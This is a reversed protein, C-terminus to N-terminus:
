KIRRKKSYFSLTLIAGGSVFLLAFWFCLMSNDGTQPSDPFEPSLTYDYENVFEAVVETVIEGNNTIKAVLNNEDDLSITISIKYEATSYQVNAKGTNVEFLKYNYKKGIDNENFTLNFEADGDEDTKVNLPSASSDALNELIFEFNEPGISEGGKNVVTKHVKVDVAIDSPKPTYINDFVVADVISSSSANVIVPNSAVLKGNEDDKIDVTVYYVSDDFTIRESDITADERIVFYYTNAESFTLADFTFSGDPKNLAILPEAQESVIFESNAPYLLFKFEGDALDRGTLVKKGDLSVTADAAHYSNFFTIKQVEKSNEGDKKLITTKSIELKGKGNDIVKVTIHYQSTDYTVGGIPAQSNEKIIFRYTGASTFEIDEFKFKGDKNNKVSQIAAGDISFDEKAKYLDFTFDNANIKRNGELMKTGEFGKKTKAAEYKNTFNLANLAPYGDGVTAIVKIGGAGDDDVKVTINYKQSSYTIGDITKGANKEKIVYYFTKGVDEAKYSLNFKYEGTATNVNATDIAKSLMEFHEDSEYLEFSFVDDAVLKRGDIKKTGSLTVSGSGTVKYENIFQINEQPIGADDYIHVTSHLQGKLDDAVEVYIRYTTNDYTVGEITQGGNKESVIYYKDDAATIDIASFKISGNSENEVTELLDEKIWNENSAYLEFEYEGGALTNNVKGTLKKDGMFQVSTKEPVYNNAFNLANAPTGNLLTYTESVVQLKGKGTDKVVITVYYSTTDYTIGYAKGGQPVQESVQYVYSGEKSYSIKPFKFSGDAYNKATWNAPSTIPQGNYSVEALTFTFEDNLLNRGTLTKNGAIEHEVPETSYSNQFVIEDDKNNILVYNAALVGDQDTVTVTMRYSTKDITIGDKDIGTEVINYFYSGVANFKLPSNFSVKSKSGSTDNTGKLVTNGDLDRVEFTFEDAVMERGTIQKSVFDINLEADAPDYTNEFTATTVNGADSPRDSGTYIIASLTGDGNDSVVATVPLADTSYTWGTPVPNPAIEKLTYNYTGVKDYSLILRAFGHETTLASTCILNNQADYLGFKFGALSQKAGGINNITKNLDIAVTASGSTSYTNTFGTFVHWGDANEKVETNEPRSARVDVIELEGDMDEDGVDVVFSHVTKDYTIGGLPTQPELEIVRYYYSGAAAYRENAFAEEFTFDSQGYVAEVTDGLQQWTGNPLLKQLQFKFSDGNQWGRGSLTKSGSVAINVPYVEAPAYDNVVVVSVTSDRAISVIGDGQEGNDWYQATFGSGPAQEVVTAVTESPLGYIKLQEDNKLTVSFQGNADTTISTMDSNTQEADFTANKTGIGSLTIRMTFAKDTPIQYDVGFDHTVEKAITLDGEGRDRNVFEVPSLTDALVTVTKDASLGSMAEVTYDPTENETIKLVTNATMGGIYLVDNPNLQVSARGDTFQISTNAGTGDAKILRAPYNTNDKTDTTNSLTFTFPESPITAGEAMTKTLKIGTEPTITLKGNNGLTSGVLFNNGDDNFTHNTIDEFAINAQELTETFNNTKNITNAELDVQVNGKPIYWTGDSKQQAAAMELDSLKRYVTDTRLNRDKKYVKCSRYMEGTPQSSGSYLTGQEDSYIFSDQLYYYKDNQKSPNFYGYTNVNEFGTTNECDWQNTYFNISGDANTNNAAQLYEDSVIEKINYSNIEDKLAVEYVLRIPHEAGSAFLECLTDEKDLTVNYTVIPILATPVEFTVLQEGTEINERVQVTAYMMNSKNVGYNEDVAGLYGYSKVTYVADTAANGTAEPLLTVGEHYFGLFEGKANAYWGIYNSYNNEDTYHIQGNEYALAVLARATDDSDLGLRTRISVLMEKGLTTPNEITGLDGGGEVFNRALEAGSFLENDILIGKVDAVEMYQGIRDVFSVYGSLNEDQSILTPFYSSQVQITGVIKNFAEKLGDALSGTTDEVEFYQDVYNQELKTDLKTVTRTPRGWRDSQVTVLDGGEAANYKKWFDNVATSANKHDPDLVSVAVSNNSVGLGLTYFLCSNAGYKSEIQAKAYAASLQSVFGLAASTDSGNGLNYQAPNTFDTTGLTPAGDSMLVLVPKRQLTGMTPDEVTVSNSKDTFQEMALIVGKQIYTAGVVEKEQSSPKNNTGEFVVDSDLRVTETTSPIWGGNRELIYNLYQGDSGTTYRGLPLLLIAADKNTTSASTGSYLIVGVRNYKNTSLLAGISENAAEVLEEAVDNGGDNMSGSVDLVLISDTPVNSTGTIGMNSAIASLAVLFSDTRSTNIGTGSFDSANTFVSKDMWVGGANETSIKGSIPFLKKWDDMTSPDTIRNVANSSAATATLISLPLMSMLIAICLLLCLVRTRLRQNDTM